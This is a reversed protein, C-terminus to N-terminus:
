RQQVMKGDRGRFDPQRLHRSEGTEAFGRGSSQQQRQLRMAEDFLVGPAASVPQAGFQNAEGFQAFGPKRQDVERPRDGLSQGSLNALGDM